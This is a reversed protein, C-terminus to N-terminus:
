QRAASEEDEAHQAPNEQMGELTYVAQLKTNTEDARSQTHDQSLQELLSCTSSILATTLWQAGHFAYLFFHCVYRVEDHM